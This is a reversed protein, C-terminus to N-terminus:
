GLKNFKGGKTAAGMGRATGSSKGSKGSVMGGKAYKMPKKKPSGGKKRM